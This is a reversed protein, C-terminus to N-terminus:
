EAQILGFVTALNRIGNVADRLSEPKLLKDRTFNELPSQHKYLGGVHGPIGGSAADFHCPAFCFPPMRRWRDKM